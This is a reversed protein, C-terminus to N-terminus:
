TKPNQMANIINDSVGTEKLKILTETSLDFNTKLDRIKSIIIDEGLKAKVMKIITNNTIVEKDQASVTGVLLIISLVSLVLYSLLRKIKMAQGGFAKSRIM